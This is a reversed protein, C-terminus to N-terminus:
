QFLNMCVQLAVQWKLCRDVMERSTLDIEGDQLQLDLEEVLRTALPFSEVVCEVENLNTPWQNPTFPNDQIEDPHDNDNPNNALFHDRVVPDHIAEWDIGYGEHEYENEALIHEVGRTGRALLGFLFM